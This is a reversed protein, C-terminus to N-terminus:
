DPHHHYEGVGADDHTSASSNTSVTTRRHVREGGDPRNTPRETDADPGLLCAVATRLGSWWGAITWRTARAEQPPATQSITPVAALVRAALLMADPELGTPAGGALRGLDEATFPTWEPDNAM